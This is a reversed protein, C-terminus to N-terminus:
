AFRVAAMRRRLSVGGESLRLLNLRLEQLGSYSIQFGQTPLSVWIDAMSPM